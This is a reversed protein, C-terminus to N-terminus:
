ADRVTASSATTGRYCQMERRRGRWYIWTASLCSGYHNTFVAVNNTTVCVCVCVCVQEGPQVSKITRVTLTAGNFVAVCNPMCSHNLLSPRCVSVTKVWVGCVNYSM